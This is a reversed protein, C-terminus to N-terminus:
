LAEYEKQIAEYNELTGIDICTGDAKFAYVPKRTYLWAPFHGPADKSNGESLYTDILRVTEKKYFYVAYIGWNSKPESPKEALDLVKDDEDLLAVALKQLQHKEPVNIAILTDADKQEFFKHMDSLEFTFINDSAMICIDDDINKEKLAFSIDGIAGRMNSPSDTGDNLISIKAKGTRDCSSAWACFQDYFKANSILIIESVDPLTDIKDVIRDIILKNGLPLLAKPKDITLPYLRTAYGAALLLVKMNGVGYNVIFNLKTLNYVIYKDLLLFFM